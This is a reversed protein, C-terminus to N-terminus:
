SSQVCNEPFTLFCSSLIFIAMPMTGDDEIYPSTKKFSIEGKIDKLTIVLSAKAEGLASNLLIFSFLLSGTYFIILCIHGCCVGELAGLTPLVVLM